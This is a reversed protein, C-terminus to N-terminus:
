ALHLEARKLAQGYTYGKGGAIFNWYKPLMKLTGNLLVFNEEVHVDSFGRFKLYRAILCNRCSSYQYRAHPNQRGIWELFDRNDFIPRM